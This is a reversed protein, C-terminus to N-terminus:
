LFTLTRTDNKETQMTIVRNDAYAQTLEKDHTIIIIIIDLAKVLDTLFQMVMHSNKEDLAATPEDLLLIHTSKQLAMMIALIQKQGGSLQQVIAHQNINFTNMIAPIHNISSLPILRPHNSLHALRLNDEVSMASVIMKNIDQVVTKIHSSIRKDMNNNKIIFPKNEFIVTGTLTANRPTTGQLISFFTTKGIGNKGQIFYINGSNFTIHVNHFFPQKQGYFSFSMHDIILQKM